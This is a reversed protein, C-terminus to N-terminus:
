AMGAPGPNVPLDFNAGILSADALEIKGNNDTDGGPLKLTGMDIIQGDATINVVKGIRLHHDGIATVGYMGQPVNMFSYAGDAGTTVEDVVSADPKVLQVTIGSNDPHNQYAMVGSVTSLQEPPLTSPPETPTEITPETTPAPPTTPETTPEPSETVVPGSSFNGNVVTLPVEVGNQDVALISCNVATSGPAAVQYNFHFATGNGGFAPNPQLL